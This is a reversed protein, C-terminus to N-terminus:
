IHICCNIFLFDNVFLNTQKKECLYDDVERRRFSIYPISDRFLYSAIKYICCNSSFCEYMFPNTQKKEFLYDDVERRRFSVSPISDPNPDVERRRFFFNSDRFSYLAIKYIYLLEFVFLRVYFILACVCVCVCM